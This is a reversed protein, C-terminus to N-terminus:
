LIFDSTLDEYIVSHDEMDNLASYLITGELALVTVSVAPSEYDKKM